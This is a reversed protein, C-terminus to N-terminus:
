CHGHKQQHPRGELAIGYSSSLPPTCCACCRPLWAVHLLNVCSSCHLGCWNVHSAWRRPLASEFKNRSCCGPAEQLM